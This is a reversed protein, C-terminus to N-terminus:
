EAKMEGVSPGSSFSRVFVNTLQNSARMASQKMVPNRQEICNDPLQRILQRSQEHLSSAEFLLHIPTQLLAICPLTCDRDACLEDTM